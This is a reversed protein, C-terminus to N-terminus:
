TQILGARRILIQRRRVVGRVGELAFVAPLAGTWVDRVPHAVFRARYRSGFGFLVLGDTADFVTDGVFPVAYLSCSDIVRHDNAVLWIDLQSDPAGSERVAVWLADGFRGAGVVKDGSTSAGIIPTGNWCLTAHGSTSVKRDAERLTFESIPVPVEVLLIGRSPSLSRSVGNALHSSRLFVAAEHTGVALYM